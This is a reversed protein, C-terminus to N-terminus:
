NEDEKGFRERTNWKKLKWFNIKLNLFHTLVYRADSCTFRGSLLTLISDVAKESIGEEQQATMSQM